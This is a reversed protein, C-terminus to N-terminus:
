ASKKIKDLVDDAAEVIQSKGIYEGDNRRGRGINNLQPLSEWYDRIEQIRQLRDPPVDIRALGQLAKYLCSYHSTMPEQSWWESLDPGVKKWYKLEEDVVSLLDSLASQGGAAAITEIVEDHLHVQEPKSLLDRLFPLAPEGCKAIEMFAARRFGREESDVFAMLGRVRERADKTKAAEQIGFQVSIIGEVKEKLEQESLRLPVLRSPGPNIVQIFAFTQDNEIWVTSVKIGGFSDQPSWQVRGETNEERCLFLVMRKGSLETPSTDDPQSWVYEISLGQPVALTQLDLADGAVLGGKWSEQVTGEGDVVVIDTANWSAPREDFSPRIVGHTQVSLLM